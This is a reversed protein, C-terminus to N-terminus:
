DWRLVAGELRAASLEKNVAVMAEEFPKERHKILPLETEVSCAKMEVDVRWDRSKEVAAFLEAVAEMVALVEKGLGIMVVVNAEDEALVARLKTLENRLKTAEEMLGPSIQIELNKPAVENTFAEIKQRLESVEAARVGVVNAQAQEYLKEVKTLMDAAMDKKRELAKITRRLTFFVDQLRVSAAHQDGFCEEVKEAQNLRFGDLTTEDKM